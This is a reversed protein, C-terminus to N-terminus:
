INDTTMKKLQAEYSWFQAIGWRLFGPGWHMGMRNIRCYWIDDRMFKRRVNIAFEQAFDLEGFEILLGLYEAQDYLDYRFPDIRSVVSYRKALGSRSDYLNRKIYQWGMAISDDVVPALEPLIRVTNILNRVVFCSHFGDVMDFDGRSALYYWRGDDYQQAVVWRALRKARDIAFERRELPGFKSHLAYAFAAYSNANVVIHPEDIPAYSLALTDTDEFRIKLAELFHWSDEFLADAEIKAPSDAPVHVLADMVYPSTTVYPTTKPYIGNVSYWKFGLGWGHGSQMDAMLAVFDTDSMAHQTKQLIAQIHAFGTPKVNLLRRLLIPMILDAAYALGLPILAIRQGQYYRAKLSGLQKTAWIDYPDYATMM